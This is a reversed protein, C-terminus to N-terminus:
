MIACNNNDEKNPLPAIPEVKTQLTEAYELFPDVQIEANLFPNFKGAKNLDVRELFADTLSQLVETDSLFELIWSKFKQWWNYAEGKQKVVQEGIAQVLAEESGFRKIGEQVLKSDRFWAIYHHAYEHPLTDQKQKAADILVTMAKINAQGIIQNAENKQLLINSLDRAQNISVENWTNGYEDTIQKVNEKGYTKNLINTVTNEYFNYIPKLAGFGETEVRELEQKLQNIETDPEIYSSNLSSLEEQIAIDEEIKNEVYVSWSGGNPKEVNIFYGDKGEVEERTKKGNEFQSILKKRDSKINELQRLRDEKQEKFEELTTHGEVKSATNGSPFLIKNYKQVTRPQVMTTAVLSYFEDKTYTQGNYTYKCAM